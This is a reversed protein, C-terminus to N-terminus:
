SCRDDARAVEPAEVLREERHVAHDADDEAAEDREVGQESGVTAGARRAARLAAGCRRATRRALLSERFRLVAPTRPPQRHSPSAPTILAFAISFRYPARVTNRPMENATSRPPQRTTVPGFPAPFDVSSRSSAPRPMGVRPVSLTAAARARAQTGRARAAERDALQRRQLVELEEAPEVPHRLPALADAHQQLPEAEPLGAALLHCLERAPHHLPQRKATREQVVRLQEDEVLGERREVVVARREEVALERSRRSPRREDDRGVIRGPDIRQAVLRRARTRRHGAVEAVDGRERALIQGQLQARAVGKRRHQEEDSAVSVTKWKARGAPPVPVGRRVAQEPPADDERREQARGHTTARSRSPASSASTRGRRGCRSRPRWSARQTAKRATASSTASGAKASRNAGDRRRRAARRRAPSRPM